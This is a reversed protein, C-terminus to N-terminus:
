SDSEASRFSSIMKLAMICCAILGLMAGGDLNVVKKLKEADIDLNNLHAILSAAEINNNGASLAFTVIEIGVFMIIGMLVFNFFTNFIIKVGIYSYRQTMKFPWFAIFMPVFACIMGLQVTCDILYFAVALWIMLGFLYNLAGAIWMELDPFGGNNEWGHCMLSKGIAPLTLASNNFCHITEYIDSLTSSDLEGGQISGFIASSTSLQCNTVTQANESGMKLFEQGM